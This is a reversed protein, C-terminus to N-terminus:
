DDIWETLEKKLALVGRHTLTKATGEPVGLIVAIEPYSFGQQHRLLVAARRQEGLGGLAAHVADLMRGREAREDPGAGPSRILDIVRLGNEGVPADLEPGKRTSERRLLDVAANHAIRYLWSRFSSREPDYTDIARMVKIWVEQFVDEAHERGKCTKVLFGLLASKHREYLRVL